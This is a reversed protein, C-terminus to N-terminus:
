LLRSSLHVAPPGLLYYNALSVSRGLFSRNAGSLCRWGQAIFFTIFDLKWGSGHSWWNGPGGAHEWAAKRKEEGCIFDKQDKSNSDVQAKMRLTSGLVRFVQFNRCTM